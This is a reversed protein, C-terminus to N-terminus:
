QWRGTGISARDLIFVTKSREFVSIAPEFGARPM